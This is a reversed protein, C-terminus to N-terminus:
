ANGRPPVSVTSTTPRPPDQSSSNPQSSKRPPDQSSSSPQSSKRPPDQSSSNAQSSMQTAQRSKIIKAEFIDSLMSAVGLGRRGGLVCYARLVDPGFNM